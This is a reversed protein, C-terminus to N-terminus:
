PSSPTCRRCYNFPRAAGGSSSHSTRRCTVHEHMSGQSTWSQKGKQLCAGGWWTRVGDTIDLFNACRYNVENDHAHSEGDELMKVKPFTALALRLLQLRALLLCLPCCNVFLTLM